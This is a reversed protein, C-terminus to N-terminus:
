LHSFLSCHIQCIINTLTSIDPPQLTVTKTSVVEFCSFENPSSLPHIRCYLQVPDAVTEASNQRSMPTKPVVHASMRFVNNSQFPILHVNSFFSNFQM